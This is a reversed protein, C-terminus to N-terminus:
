TCKHAYELYLCLPIHIHQELIRKLKLSSGSNPYQFVLCGYNHAYFNNCNTRIKNEKTSLELQGNLQTKRM